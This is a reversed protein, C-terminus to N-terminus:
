SRHAADGRQRTGARYEGDPFPRCAADPPATTFGAAPGSTWQMPTRVALRGEIELNESMGIEEGYFLTPAGPMSFMLSYAMRLWQGDGDLM